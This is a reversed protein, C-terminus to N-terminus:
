VRCVSNPSSSACNEAIVSQVWAEYVAKAKEADAIHAHVIESVESPETTTARMVIFDNRWRQEMVDGFALADLTCGQIWETRSSRYPNCLMPRNVMQPRTPYVSMEHWNIVYRVTHYRVMHFPLWTDMFSWCIDWNYLQQLVLAYANIGHWTLIADLM